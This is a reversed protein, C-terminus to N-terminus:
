LNVSIYTKVMTPDEPNAEYLDFDTAYKRNNVNSWIYLWTDSVSKPLEGTSTYVQYNWKSIKKFICGDPVDELSSVKCWIITNYDRISIDDCDGAYDTYIQYIDDNVRDTIEWMIGDGIFEQWLAPIDISAKQNNTRIYLWVIYFEDLESNVYDMM